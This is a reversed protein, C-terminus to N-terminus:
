YLYNGVGLIDKILHAFTYIIEVRSDYPIFITKKVWVFRRDNEERKLFQLCEDYKLFFEEISNEM